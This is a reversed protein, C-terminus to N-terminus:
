YGDLNSSVVMTVYRFTKVSAYNWSFRPDFYGGWWNPNPGCGLNLAFKKNDAEQPEIKITRTQGAKLSFTKIEKQFQILCTGSGSGTGKIVAVVKDGWYIKSKTTLSVKLNFKPTAYNPTPEAKKVARKFTYKESTSVKLDSALALVSWTTVWPALPNPDQCKLDYTFIGKSDTIPPSKEKGNSDTIGTEDPCNIASINIQQNNLPYTGKDSEWNVKGTIRLFVDGSETFETAKASISLKESESKILNVFVPETLLQGGNIDTALASIQVQGTAYVRPIRCGFTIVTRDGPKSDNSQIFCEKDGSLNTSALRISVSKPLENPAGSYQVILPDGTSLTTGRTLGRVQLDRAGSIVSYSIPQLVFPHTLGLSSITVKTIKSPNRVLYKWGDVFKDVSAKDFPLKHAELYSKAWDEKYKLDSVATKSRSEINKDLDISCEIGNSTIKSTFGEMLLLGEVSSSNYMRAYLASRDSADTGLMWFHFGIDGCTSSKVAEPGTFQLVLTSKEPTLSSGARPSIVEVKNLADQSAAFEISVGTLLLSCLLVEILHRQRKFSAM